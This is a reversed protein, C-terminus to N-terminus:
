PRPRLKAAEHMVNHRNAALDRATPQEIYPWASSARPTKEQVPAPVGALLRRQCLADNFDLSYSWKEVSRRQQTEATIRDVRV